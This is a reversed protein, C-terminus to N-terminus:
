SHRASRAIRSAQEVWARAERPVPEELGLAVKRIPSKGTGVLRGSPDDISAGMPFGLTVHTKAPSLYCFPVDEAFFFPVGYSIGERADKATAHVLARLEGCLVRAPLPRKALFADVAPDRKGM